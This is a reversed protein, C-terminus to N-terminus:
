AILSELFVLRQPIGLGHHVTVVDLLWLLYTSTEGVTLLVLYHGRLLIQLCHITWCLFFPGQSLRGDIDDVVAIVIRIFDLVPSLM